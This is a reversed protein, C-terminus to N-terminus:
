KWLLVKQCRQPVPAPDQILVAGHDQCPILSPLFYSGQCTSKSPCCLSIQQSENLLLPQSFNHHVTAEWCFVLTHLSRPFCVVQKIRMISVTRQRCSSFLLLHQAFSYIDLLPPQNTHAAITPIFILESGLSEQWGKNHSYLDSNVALLYLQFNLTGM